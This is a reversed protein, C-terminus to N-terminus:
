YNMEWGEEIVRGTCRYAETKNGPYCYRPQKTVPDKWWGNAEDDVGGSPYLLTGKGNTMYFVFIDRGRYNPGKNPGNVDIRVAGCKASMNGITSGGLDVGCNETYISSIDNGDPDRPIIDIGYAIGDDTIFSYWGKTNWDSEGASGDYAGNVNTPMCGEPRIGCNKYVKFKKVFEDGFTQNSKGHAIAFLGTRPLDGVCGHDLSISDLAQNFNNYAKHLNVVYGRKQANEIFGPMTLAAIFGLVGIVALIEATTFALKNKIRMLKEMEKKIIKAHGFLSLLSM